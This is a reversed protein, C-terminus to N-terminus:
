LEIVPEPAELEQSPAFDRALQFFGVLAAAVVAIMCVGYGVLRRTADKELRRRAASCAKQVRVADYPAACVGHIIDPLISACPRVDPDRALLWLLTAEIALPLSAVYHSPPIIEGCLVQRMVEAPSCGDFPLRGTLAAYWTAGLGYVDAACTCSRADRVQEPAMFAPSGVACYAPTHVRRLSGAPISEARESDSGDDEDEEVDVVVGDNRQKRVRRALGLDILKASGRQLDVIINSPTVDRHVVNVSALHALARAIQLAYTSAAEWGIRGGHERLIHQLSEGHVLDMALFHRGTKADMGWEIGGVLHPTPPLSCTMKAERIFRGKMECSANARLIKLAVATGRVDLAEHVEGYNGGGIKRVLIYDGCYQQPEMRCAYATSPETPPVEPISAVLSLPMLSLQTEASAITICYAIIKKM